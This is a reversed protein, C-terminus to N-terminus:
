HIRDCIPLGAVFQTPFDSESKIDEADGGCRKSMATREIADTFPDGSRPSPPCPELEKAASASEAEREIQAASKTRLTKCLQGTATDFAVVGEYGDVPKFRNAPHSRTLIFFTEAAIVVAFLATLLKFVMADGQKPPEVAGTIENPPARLSVVVSKWKPIGGLHGRQPFLEPYSQALNARLV